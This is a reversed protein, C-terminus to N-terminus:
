VQMAPVLLFIDFLLLCLYSLSRLCEMCLRTRSRMAVKAAKAAKQELSRRESDHGLQPPHKIKEEGHGQLRISSPASHRAEGDCASEPGGPVRRADFDCMPHPNASEPGM